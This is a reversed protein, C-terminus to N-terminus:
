VSNGVGARNSVLDIGFIFFHLFYYINSPLYYELSFITTTSLQILDSYWIKDKHMIACLKPLPRLLQVIGIISKCAFSM